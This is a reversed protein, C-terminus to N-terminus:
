QADGGGFVVKKLAALAEAFTPKESKGGGDSLAMVGHSEVDALADFVAVVAEMRDDVYAPQVLVLPSGDNSPEIVESAKVSQRNGESDVAIFVIGNEEQDALIASDFEEVQWECNGIPDHALYYLISGM